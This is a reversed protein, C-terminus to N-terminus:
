LVIDGMEEWGFLRDIEESEQQRKRKRQEERILHHYARRTVTDGNRRLGRWLRQLYDSGDKPHQKQEGAALIRIREMESWVDQAFDRKLLDRFKGLDRPKWQLPLTVPRDKREIEEKYLRCRQRGNVPLFMLQQCVPLHDTDLAGDIWADVNAAAVGQARLGLGIRTSGTRNFTSAARLVRRALFGYVLDAREHETPREGAALDGVCSEREKGVSM